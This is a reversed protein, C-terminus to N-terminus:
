ILGPRSTSFDRALRQHKSRPTESKRGCDRLRTTCEAPNRIQARPATNAARTSQAAHTASCSSPSSPPRQHYAQWITTFAVAGLEFVWEGLGDSCTIPRSAVSMEQGGECLEETQFGLQWESSIAATACIALFTLSRPTVPKARGGVKFQRQLAGTGPTSWQGM